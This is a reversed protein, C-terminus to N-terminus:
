AASEVFARLLDTETIIGLLRAGDLVPLAGIKHDIMIRAAERADRGPDVTIVNLEWVSLSIAPSAMALAQEALASGDLPVLVKDVKM